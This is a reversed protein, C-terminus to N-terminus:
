GRWAETEKLTYINVDITKGLKKLFERWITLIEKPAPISPNGSVVKDFFEETKKLDEESLSGIVSDVVARFKEYFQAYRQSINGGFVICRDLAAGYIVAEAWLMTTHERKLNVFGTKPFKKYIGAEKTMEEMEEDM